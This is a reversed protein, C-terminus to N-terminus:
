KEPAVTFNIDVEDKVKVTGGGVRVPTMGFDTQKVRVSGSYCGDELQVPFEIAHMAGHLTLNGKVLFRNTGSSEVSSSVFSIEPYREGDLVKDSKMTRDVEARDSDSADKDAVKMDSVRFTLRVTRQEPDFSGSAVPAVITHEHGFASFLGSKHVQVTVSSNSRDVERTQAGAAACAVCLGLVLARM